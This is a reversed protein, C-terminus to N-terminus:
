RVACCGPAPPCSEEGGTFSEIAGATALLVRWGGENRDLPFPVVGFCGATGAVWRLARRGDWRETELGTSLRDSFRPFPAPPPRPVAAVTGGLTLSRLFFNSWDADGGAEVVRFGTGLVDGRSVAELLAFALGGPTPLPAVEWPAGLDVAVRSRSVARSVLLVEPARLECRGFYPVPSWTGVSEWDNALLIDLGRVEPDVCECVALDTVPVASGLEREGGGRWFPRKNPSIRGSSLSATVGPNPMSVVRGLLVDSDLAMLGTRDCIILVRESGSM